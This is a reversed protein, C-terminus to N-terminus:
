YNSAANVMGSGHPNAVGTDQDLRHEGQSFIEKREGGTDPVGSGIGSGPGTSTYGAHGAPPDKHLRNRQHNETIGAEHSTTAGSNHDTGAGTLGSTQGGM